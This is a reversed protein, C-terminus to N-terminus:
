GSRTSTKTPGRSASQSVRAVSSKAAEIEAELLPEGGYRSRCFLATVLEVEQSRDFETVRLNEVYEHPTMSDHKPWGLKQLEVMMEDYFHRVKMARVVQPSEAKWSWAWNRRRKWAAHTAWLFVMVAALEALYDSLKAWLKSASAMAHALLENQTGADLNVVHAYWAFDLAEFLDQYEFGPPPRLARPTGDLTTWGSSEFWAETWAHADSFRIDYWGSFINRQGPAFGAMVRTPIGQHRLILALASAFRECHGRREDFIFSELVNTRSLQPAGLEYEFTDRLHTEFLRAIRLPDTENGVKTRMWERLRDSPPPVQLCRRRLTDTLREPRFSLDAWWDYSVNSRQPGPQVEVIRQANLYSRTFWNGELRLVRGDSPLVRGSPSAYLSNVQKVRAKRRVIRSGPEPHLTATNTNFLPVLGGEHQRKWIQGDFDTYAAARLYGMNAGDVQMFIRRSNETGSRSPDLSNDLMNQSGGGGTGRWGGGLAARPFLAFVAVAVIGILMYQAWGLRFEPTRRWTSAAANDRDMAALEMLAGPALLVMAVFIAFFRIDLITTCVVGFHLLSILLMSVRERPALKRGMRVLQVCALGHGLFFQGSGGLTKSLGGGVLSGLILALIDLWAVPATGSPRYRQAALWLGAYLLPGLWPEVTLGIGIWGALVLRDSTPTPSGRPTKVRVEPKM